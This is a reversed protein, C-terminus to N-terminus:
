RDRQEVLEQGLPGRPMVGLRDLFLAVAKGLFERFRFGAHLLHVAYPHRRDLRRHGPVGAHRPNQKLGAFLVGAYVPRVVPGIRRDFLLEVAHQGVPLSDGAQQGLQHRISNRQQQGPLLEILGGALHIREKQEPDFPHDLVAARGVVRHQCALRVKDAHVERREIAHFLQNQLTVQGRPRLLSRRNQAARVGVHRIHRAAEEQHPTFVGLRVVGIERHTEDIHFREQHVPALDRVRVIPLEHRMHLRRHIDGHLMRIRRRELLVSGRSPLNRTEAAIRLGHHAHIPEIGIRVRFPCPLPQRRFGLPFQRSSGDVPPGIRPPALRRGLRDDVARGAAPEQGGLNVPLM